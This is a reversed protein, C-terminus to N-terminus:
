SGNGNCFSMTPIGLHHGVPLTLYPDGVTRGGIGAERMDCKNYMGGLFESQVVQYDLEFAPGAEQGVFVTTVAIRSRSRCWQWTM